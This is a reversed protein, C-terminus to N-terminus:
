LSRRDATQSPKEGFALNYLAATRGTPSLGVKTSAVTVNVGEILLSRMKELRIRRLSQMPTEGRVERFAIQITRASVHCAECVDGLTLPRLYASEMFAMAADVYSAMSRSGVLSADSGIAAHMRSGVFGLIAAQTSEMSDAHWPGPESRKLWLLHNVAETIFAEHGVFAETAIRYQDDGQLLKQWEKALRELSINILWGLTEESHIISNQKEGPLSIFSTKNSTSAYNRAGVTGGYAGALAISLAISGEPQRSQWTALGNTKVRAANITKGVFSKTEIFGAQNGTRVTARVGHLRLSEITETDLTVTKTVSL